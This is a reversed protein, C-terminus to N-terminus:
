IKRLKQKRQSIEKFKLVSITVLVLTGLKRRKEDELDNTQIDGIGGSRESPEGFLQEEICEDDIEVNQLIHLLLNGEKRKEKNDCRVPGMSVDLNFDDTESDVSLVSSLDPANNQQSRGVIASAVEEAALVPMSPVDCAVNTSFPISADDIGNPTTEQEVDEDLEEDFAGIISLNSSDSVPSRVKLPENIVNDEGVEEEYAIKPNSTIHMVNTVAVGSSVAASSSAAAACGAAAAVLASIVQESVLTEEASPASSMASIFSIDLSFGPIFFNPIEEELMEVLINTKENCEKSFVELIDDDIEDASFYLDTVVILNQTYLHSSTKLSQETFTINRVNGGTELINTFTHVVSLYTPIIDDRMTSTFNRESFTM